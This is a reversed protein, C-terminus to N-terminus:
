YMPWSTGWWSKRWWCYIRPLGSSMKMLNTKRASKSTGLRLSNM